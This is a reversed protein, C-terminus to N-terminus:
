LSLFASYPIITLLGNAVELCLTLDSRRVRPDIGNETTDNLFIIM